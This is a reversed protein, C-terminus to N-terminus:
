SDFVDELYRDHNEAVDPCGSHYRGALDRARRILERRDRMPRRALYETVSERVLDAMSREESRAQAKASETEMFLEKLITRAVPYDIRRGM